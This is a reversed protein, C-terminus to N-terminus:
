GCALHLSCPVSFTLTNEFELTNLSQNQGDKLELKTRYDNIKSVTTTEPGFEEATAGVVRGLRGAARQVVAGLGRVVQEAFVIVDVGTISQQVLLDANGDPDLVTDATLAQGHVVNRAFKM